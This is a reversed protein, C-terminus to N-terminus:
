ASRGRSRYAAVAERTSCQTSCHCRSRNKSTDVFVDDCRDSRCFGFREIGHQVVVTALGMATVVGLWSNMSTDRSEFHLHPDGTHLSVRPIANNEVLLTNLRNSADTVDNALIVGRLADRLEHIVVLDDRRPQNAVGGWLAEYDALFMKLSSLDSIQDPGGYFRHDTNVLEETNVLEVALEVAENKYHTFDVQSIVRSSISYYAYALM